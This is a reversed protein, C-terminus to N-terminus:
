ESVIMSEWDKLSTHYVPRCCISNMLWYIKWFLLFFSVIFCASVYWLCSVHSSMRDCCGVGAGDDFVGQFRLGRGCFLGAVSM